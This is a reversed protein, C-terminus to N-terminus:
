ESSVALDVAAKLGVGNHAALNNQGELVGSHAALNSLDQLHSNGGHPRHDRHGALRNKGGRPRHDRPVVQLVKGNLDRDERPAGSVKIVVLRM